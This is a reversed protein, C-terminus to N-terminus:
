IQLTSDLRTWYRTKPFFKAINHVNVQLLLGLRITQEVHNGNRAVKCDIMCVGTTNKKEDAPYNLKTFKWNEQEFINLLFLFCASPVMNTSSQRYTRKFECKSISVHKNAWSFYQCQLWFNTLKSNQKQHRGVSDM